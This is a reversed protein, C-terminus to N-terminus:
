CAPWSVAIYTDLMREHVLLFGIPESIIVDVQEPLTVEELRGKVVEIV